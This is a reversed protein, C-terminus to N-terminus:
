EVLQASLVRNTTSDPGMWWLWHVANEGVAGVVFRGFVQVSECPIGGWSTEKKTLAHELFFGAFGVVELSSHGNMGGEPVHVVPLVVLRPTSAFSMTAPNWTASWNSWSTADNTFVTDSAVRDAAGTYTPGTMNGPETDV